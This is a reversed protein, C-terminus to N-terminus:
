SELPKFGTYEYRLTCNDPVHDWTAADLSLNQYVEWGAVGSKASLFRFEINVGEHELM